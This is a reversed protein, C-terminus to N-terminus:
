RRCRRCRARSRWSPAGTAAWGARCVRPGAPPRTRLAPPPASCGLAERRDGQRAARSRARAASSSVWNACSVFRCRMKLAAKIDPLVLHHPHPVPARGQLVIAWVEGSGGVVMRVLAAQVEAGAADRQPEEAGGLAGLLPALAGLAAARVARSEDTLAAALPRRVLRCAESPPLLAAVDAM